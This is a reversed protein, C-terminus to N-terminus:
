RPEDGHVDNGEEVEWTGSNEGEEIVSWIADINKRPPVNIAAVMYGCFKGKEILAGFGEIRALMEQTNGPDGISYRVRYTSHKGQKVVKVMEYLGGRLPKADVVDHYSLRKALAPINEIRFHRGHKTAWLTETEYNHWTDDGLRVVIRVREEDTGTM